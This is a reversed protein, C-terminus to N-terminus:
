GKRKGGEDVDELMKIAKQERTKFISNFISPLLLTSNAHDAAFGVEADNGLKERTVKIAEELLGTGIGKGRYRLKTTWARILGKGGKGNKVKKKGTGSGGPRELRLVLAGIVEDGFKSGILLDDEGTEENSLFEWKMKEAENLYGGTLMRVAVLMSMSVGGVTTVVIGIDQPSKYLLQYVVGVM